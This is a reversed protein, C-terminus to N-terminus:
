NFRNASRKTMLRILASQMLEYPGQSVLTDYTHRLAIKLNGTVTLEKGDIEVPKRSQPSGTAYSFAEYVLRFQLHDKRLTRCIKSGRAGLLLTVLDILNVVEDPSSIPECEYLPKVALQPASDTFSYVYRTAARLLAYWVGRDACVISTEPKAITTQVLLNFTYSVM